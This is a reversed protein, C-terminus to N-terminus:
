ILFLISLKEECPQQKRSHKQRPDEASIYVVALVPMVVRVQAPDAVTPVAVIAAAAAVVAAAAAGV